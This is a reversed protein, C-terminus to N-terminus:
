SFVSDLDEDSISFVANSPPLPETKFFEPLRDDKSTFGAKKNFEKEKEICRLGMAMMDEPGFPRGLLATMVKFFAEGGEPTGMAVTAFLCVGISDAFTFVPQANKAAEVHGSKKQPDLQGTLYEEILNAATHDAGMPSTAYIVGNGPMARPDYAAISQRKVVPIRHHKFHEGVAVPGDGLIKGFETGKAIEEMMELAAESDGFKKYGADMAVGLAVGTSMTDLGLDDSMRDLRAIVDLDTIGTMGGMSWITEYELSATILEGKEDVYDNSCHIICKSCGKHTTKGGRKKITEAMTEGSIKEWGELTGQTANLAPFAGNLNVPAVLGATGLNPWMVGSMPHEKVAKIYTKLGEKFAKPDAIPTEYKGGKEVMISKLGKSGMVAGMGGRGAARCTRGDTDSTQISACLMKHEGAPGICAVTMKDGFQKFLKQALSYTRMGKCDSAAILEAKGESSIKLHYLEGEPAQDEIIFAKIGTSGLAAGITGGANSEKIGLTLPSKGGFSLRSTDIFNTGGLLGIAAVLKNEPGLPDCKAPVEKNIIEATLGRGGLEAYESPLTEEVISLGAMNIRLCKM